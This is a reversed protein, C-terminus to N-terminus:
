SVVRLIIRTPVKIGNCLAPEWIYKKFIRLLETELKADRDGPITMLNSISGNAEVIISISFNIQDTEPNKPLSVASLEDYLKDMGGIIKAQKDVNNFIQRNSSSDMVSDCKGGQRNQGFANIALAIFILVLYRM